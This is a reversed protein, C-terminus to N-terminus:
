DGGYLAALTAGADDDWPKVGQTMMDDVEAGSYGMCAGSDEDDDDRPAYDFRDVVHPQVCLAAYRAAVAANEAVTDDNMPRPQHLMVLSPVMDGSGIVRDLPSDPVQTQRGANGSFSGPHEQQQQQALAALLRAVDQQPTSPVDEDDLRPAYDPRRGYDVCADGHEDYRRAPDV